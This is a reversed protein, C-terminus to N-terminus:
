KYFLGPCYLNLIQM